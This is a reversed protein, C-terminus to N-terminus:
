IYNKACRYPHSRAIQVTNGQYSNIQKNTYRGFCDRGNIGYNINDVFREKNNEIKHLGDNLITIKTMYGM